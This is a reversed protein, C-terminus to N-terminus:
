HEQGGGPKSTEKICLAGRFLKSHFGLFESSPNLHSQQLGVPRASLNGVFKFDDM